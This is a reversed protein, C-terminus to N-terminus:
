AFVSFRAAREGGTHITANYSAPETCDDASAPSVPPASAGRCLVALDAGAPRTFYATLNFGSKDRIMQLHRVPLTLAIPATTLAVMTGSADYAFVSVAYAAGATGSGWTLSAAPAAVDQRLVAAADAPDATAVPGPVVVVRAGAYSADQPLQWSVTVESPTSTGRVAVADVPAVAVTAGARLAAAGHGVIVILM